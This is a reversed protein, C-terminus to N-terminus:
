GRPGGSPAQEPVVIAPAGAGSDSGAVVDAVAVVRQGEGAVVLIVECARGGTGLFCELLLRADAAHDTAEQKFTVFGEYLVIEIPRAGDPPRRLADPLARLFFVAALCMTAGASHYWYRNAAGAREFGGREVPNGDGSLLGSLPAEVILAAEPHGRRLLGAVEEVCRGFAM